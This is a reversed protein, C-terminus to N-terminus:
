VVIHEIRSVDAIEESKPEAMAKVISTTGMGYAEASIDRNGHLLEHMFLLRISSLSILEVIAISGQHSQCWKRNCKSLTRLLRHFITPHMTQCSMVSFLGRFAASKQPLYYNSQNITAFFSIPLRHQQLHTVREFSFLSTHLAQRPSHTFALLKIALFALRMSFKFGEVFRYLIPIPIPSVLLM